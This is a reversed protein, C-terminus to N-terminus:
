GAKYKWVLITEGKVTAIGQKLEAKNIVNCRKWKRVREILETPACTMHGIQDAHVVMQMDWGIDECEMEGSSETSEKDM